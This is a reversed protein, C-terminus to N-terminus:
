LCSNGTVLLLAAAIGGVIWPVIGRGRQSVVESYSPDKSDYTVDMRQGIGAPPFQYPMSDCYYQLGTSKMRWACSSWARGTGLRSYANQASLLEGAGSIEM